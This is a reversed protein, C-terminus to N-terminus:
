GEFGAAPVDFELAEIIGRRAESVATAGDDGRDEGHLGATLAAQVIGGIRVDRDVLSDGM